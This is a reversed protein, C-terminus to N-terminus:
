VRVVKEKGGKEMIYPHGLSFDERAFTLNPNYFPDNALVHGWKELMYNIEGRFREIKEPTDEYGRSKSEHHYLKVHPLWVNYYGKERVKLCFDVDNFAVQLTEELGGVEEFISKKIMLCAATVASYNSIVQLRRFYGPNDAPFHKHSHGAVGGLGLVVGGHQLTDDPYYLCAGVAGIEPRIAQGAMETLWDPTIVEIDNNLLLILEGTAKSVGFNNIKSYNFPIDYSYVVFREPEREKWYEYLKFNEPDNSGNDIVIVEYYQYTTKEFISQLCQSVISAMNRTPIIISVKPNGVPQYRLLYINSYGEIEHVTAPLNRRKVTEELARLSALHTYSKSSDSMSTSSPISRWHYLIKPIHRIRNTLESARLILDYDQSGEFGVRFGGAQEVLTKRYVSLHCIYMQSLLLDPSWDPKFFPSHREGKITIKDEDSYIIDTDPHENLLKVVEYLANPTLEDDHDLLAIFEGSAMALADNSARSIHGNKERFMVKIRADEAAYKELTPRIHPKTSCDDVLCLEWNPYVQKRVSQICLELWKKDVNYVPVLVSILPKYALSEITQRMVSESEALEAEQQLFMQYDTMEVAPSRFALEDARKLAGILGNRRILGLAKKTLRWITGLNFGHLRFYNIVSLMLRELRYVKRAHIAGLQLTQEYEGIDLRLGSVNKPLKVVTRSVTWKTGLRGAEVVQNGNFGEGTEYYLHLLTNKDAKGEVHIRIWGGLLPKRWEFHPDNGTSRWTHDNIRELQYVPVLDAKRGALLMRKLARIAGGAIRIPKSWRWSRSSLITELDHILNQHATRLAHLDNVLSQNIARVSDLDSKLNQNDKRMADLDNMLNQNFAKVTDLEKKLDRNTARTTELDKTLESNYERIKNLDYMLEQNTTRVANLDNVLEQNATRMTELEISLNQNVSRVTELDNVLSQNTSRMMEQENVLDRNAGELAEALNKINEIESRLSELRIRHEELEGVATENQRIKESFEETLVKGVKESIRMDIAVKLPGAQDIAHIIFGPDDGTSIGYLRGLWFGNLTGNLEARDPDVRYIVNGDRGLIEFRSIEVFGQHNMPDLRLAYLRSVDLDFEYTAWQDYLIAKRASNKASFTEEESETWFVEAYRILENGEPLVQPTEEKYDYLAYVTGRFEAVLVKFHEKFYSPNLVRGQLDIEMLYMVAELLEFPIGEPLFDTFHNATIPMGSQRAYRILRVLGIWPACTKRTLDFDVLHADKGDYIVNRLALDGTTIYLKSFMLDSFRQIDDALRRRIQPDIDLGDLTDLISRVEAQRVMDRESQDIDVDRLKVYIDSIFGAAKDVGISGFQLLYELNDGQFFEEIVYIDTGDRYVGFIEPVLAGYKDRLLKQFEVMGDIDYPGQLNLKKVACLPAGDWRALYRSTNSSAARYESNNIASFSLREKAADEDPLLGIDKLVHLLNM